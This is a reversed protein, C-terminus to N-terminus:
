SETVIIILGTMYVNSLLACPKNHSLFALRESLIPPPHGLINEMVEQLIKYLINQRYEDGGGVGSESVRWWSGLKTCEREREFGM